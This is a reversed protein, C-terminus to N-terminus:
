LAADAGVTVATLGLEPLVEPPAATVMEPVLRSPAVLTCNLPTSASKATSDSVLMRAKAGSCVLAPVISTVTVV